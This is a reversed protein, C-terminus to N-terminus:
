GAKRRQQTRHASSRGEESSTQIWQILTLASTESGGVEVNCHEACVLGSCSSDNSMHKYKNEQIHTKGAGGWGWGSVLSCHQCTMLSKVREAKLSNLCGSQNFGLCVILGDSPFPSFFLIKSPNTKKKDSRRLFFFFFFVDLAGRSRSRAVSSYCSNCYWSESHGWRWLTKLLLSIYM